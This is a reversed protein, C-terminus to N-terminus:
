VVKQESIAARALNFLLLFWCVALFPRDQGTWFKLEM